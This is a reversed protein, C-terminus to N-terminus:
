YCDVLIKGPPLAFDKPVLSVLIEVRQTARKKNDDHIKSAAAQICGHLRQCQSRLIPPQSHEDDVLDTALAQTSSLELPSGNQDIPSISGIFLQSITMGIAKYPM